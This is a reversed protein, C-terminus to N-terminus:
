PWRRELLSYYPFFDKALAAGAVDNAIDDQARELRMLAVFVVGPHLTPIM